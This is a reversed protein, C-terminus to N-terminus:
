PTRKRERCVLYGPIPLRSSLWRVLLLMASWSVALGPDSDIVPEKQENVVAEVIDRRQHPDGLHKINVTQVPLGITHISMDKKSIM